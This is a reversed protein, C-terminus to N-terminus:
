PNPQYVTTQWQCAPCIAQQNQITIDTGHCQPCQLLDALNFPRKQQRQKLQRRHQKQRLPRTIIFVATEALNRALAVIQQSKPRNQVWSRALEETWVAGQNHEPLPHIHYTLPRQWVHRVYFVDRYAKILLGYELSNAGMEELITAPPQHCLAAPKPMLHLTNDQKTLLWHHYPRIPHLYEWVISPTEIYGAPAVRQIEKFFAAPNPIHELIHRTIIFDFADSRFPLHQVDGEVLPRDVILNHGRETNDDLFKDCLVDARPHPKHGSGVDLVLAEPPIALPLSIQDDNMAM